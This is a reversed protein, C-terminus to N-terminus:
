GPKGSSCLRGQTKYAVKKGLDKLKSIAEEAKDDAKDALDAITEKVGKQKLDEVKKEIFDEAKDFAETVEGYAKSKRVQEAKEEIFDDAKDVLKKAKEILSEEGPNVPGEKKEEEM